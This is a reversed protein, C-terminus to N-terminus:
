NDQALKQAAALDDAYYKKTCETNYARIEDNHMELTANFKNRKDRASSSLDAESQPSFAAGAVELEDRDEDLKRARKICQALQPATLFDATYHKELSQVAHTGRAMLGKLFPGLGRAELPVTACTLCALAWFATFARGMTGERIQFGLEILEDDGRLRESQLFPQPRAKVSKSALLHKVSQWPSRVNRLV